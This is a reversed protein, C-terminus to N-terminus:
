RGSARENRLRPDVKRTIFALNLFGGFPLVAGLLLRCVEARSWDAPRAAITQIAVWVFAVFALGHVPGMIKVALPIGYLHKLPVAVLLLLLLTAAELLSAIRLGGDTRPPM